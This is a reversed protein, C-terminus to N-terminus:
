WAFALFLSAEFIFYMSARVKPPELKLSYSSSAKRSFKMDPSQPWVSISLFLSFFLAWKFCCHTLKCSRQLFTLKAFCTFYIKYIIMNFFILMLQNVSSFRIFDELNCFCNRDHCDEKKKILRVQLKGISPMLQLLHQIVLLKKRTKWFKM